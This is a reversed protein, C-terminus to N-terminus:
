RELGLLERFDPDWFALRGRAVREDMEMHVPPRPKTPRTGILGERELEQYRADSYGLLGQLIDRNHQGSTPAPGRVGLPTRSLKWPRGIIIRKGIRREPPYQVRELLGRARLHPDLHLDRANFVAGAPVGARQMREMVAFKGLAATWAAIVADIADHNAMRATNTAFRPDDALEPREIVHCM